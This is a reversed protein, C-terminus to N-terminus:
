NTIHVCPGGVDGDRSRVAEIGFKKAEALTQSGVALPTALLVPRNTHRVVNQAFVLQQYTKGLGCDQFSAARGKRITWETIHKQFDFMEDPIWIPKFGHSDGIKRRRELFTSYEM